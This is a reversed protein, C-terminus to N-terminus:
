PTIQKPAIDPWYFQGADEFMRAAQIQEQSHQGHRAAIIKFWGIEHDHKRLQIVPRGLDDLVLGRKDIKVSLHHLEHDLLARRERDSATNWWDGDIAIEADARGLARDKLPIKRAIGLAKVGNKTLADNLPEGTEEDKDSFAFVYDVTVECDVLPKHTEYAKLISTGIASVWDPARQFKSTQLVSEGRIKKAVCELCLGNETIGAKGCGPCKKDMDITITPTKKSM